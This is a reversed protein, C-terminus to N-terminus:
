LELQGRLALLNVKHGLDRLKEPVETSRTEVALVSGEIMLVLEDVTKPSVPTTGAGMGRVVERAAHLKALTAGAEGLFYLRDADYALQRVETLPLYYSRLRALVQHAEESAVAADGPQGGRLAAATQQTARSLQELQEALYHFSTEELVPKWPECPSEVSRVLFGGLLAGVLLAILVNLRM